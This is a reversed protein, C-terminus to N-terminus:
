ETGSLDLLWIKGTRDDICAIKRGDPAFRADSENIAPTSTLGVVLSGDSRVLQLDSGLICLGDEVTRFGLVWRGDLSVDTISPPGTSPLSYELMGDASLIDRSWGVSTVERDVAFHSKSLFPLIRVFLDQETSIPAKGHGDARSVFVRPYRGVEVSAWYTPSADISPVQTGDPRLTQVSTEGTADAAYSVAILSDSTWGILRTQGASTASTLPIETATAVDLAIV